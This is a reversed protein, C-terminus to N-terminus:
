KEFLAKDGFVSTATPKPKTTTGPTPRPRPARGSSPKRTPEPQMPPDSGNNATREEGGPDPPATSGSPTTAPPSPPTSPGATVATSPQQPSSAPLPSTSPATSPPSATPADAGGGKVDPGGGGALAMYALPVVVVCVSILGLVLWRSSKKEDSPAAEVKAIAAQDQAGTASGAASRAASAETLASGAVGAALGALSQSAPAAPTKSAEPATGAGDSTKGLAEAAGGAGEIKPLPPLGIAARIEEPSLRASTSWQKPPEASSGDGTSSGVRGEWLNAGEDPRPSRPGGGGAVDFDVAAGVAGAGSGAGSGRPPPTSAHGPQNQYRERWGVPGTTEPVGVRQASFLKEALEAESDPVEDISLVPGGSEYASADRKAVLRITVGGPLDSERGTTISTWRIDSQYLVAAIKAACESVDGFSAKDPHVIVIRKPQAAGNTLWRLSLSSPPPKPLNVFDDTYAKLVDPVAAPRKLAYEVYARYLASSPNDYEGKAFLHKFFALSSSLVASYDMRRDIAAIGHAFPPDQRGAHDTVGRIRFGFILGLGGHGPEYQTDDRSLNGIAFAYESNTQPEIYKMLRSLHSFHQRALPGQPVEPRYMFDIQHGPVNGHLFHYWTAGSGARYTPVAYGGQREGHDDM